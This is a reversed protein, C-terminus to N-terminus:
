AKRWFAAALALLWALALPPLITGLLHLEPMITRLATIAFGLGLVVSAAANLRLGTQRFIAGVFILWLGSFLQVGLLEGVGGAYSNLTIYNLEIMTRVVPDTANTYLDALGPMAVLWRVIGLTKLVAAAIGFAAMADTLMANAGHAVAYRRLAIVFPIMALATLM